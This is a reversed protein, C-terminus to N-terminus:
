TEVYKKTKLTQVGGQMNDMQLTLDCHLHSNVPIPPVLKGCTDAHEEM